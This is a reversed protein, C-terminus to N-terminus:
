GALDGVEVAPRVQRVGNLAAAVVRAAQCPCEGVEADRLMLLIHIAHELFPAAPACWGVVKAHAVHTSCLSTSAHQTITCRTTTPLAYTGPVHQCATIYSTLLPVCSTNFSCERMLLIHIAHQLFPAAPACWGVVEAHAVHTICLPHTCATHHHMQHIPTRLDSAVHLDAPACM